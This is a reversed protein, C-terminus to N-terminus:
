AIPVAPISRPHIYSSRHADSSARRRDPRNPREMLAIGFGYKGKPRTCAVAGDFKQAILNRYWALITDPKAVYAVQSLAKRGLRKGAHGKRSRIAENSSPLHARLNLNEAAPIREQPPTGQNIPGTAYALLPGSLEREYRPDM